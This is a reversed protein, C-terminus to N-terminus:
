SALAGSPMPTGRGSSRQSRPGPAFGLRGPVPGFRNDTTEGSSAHIWLLGGFAPLWMTAVLLWFIWGRAAMAEGFAHGGIIVLTVLSVIMAGAFWGTFAAPVWWGSKGIDHLRKLIAMCGIWFLPANLSLFLGGNVPEGLGSVLLAVLSQVVLLAIALYLFGRRDCRGRPDFLQRGLDAADKATLFSTMLM